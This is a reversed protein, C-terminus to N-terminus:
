FNRYTEFMDVLHTAVKDGSSTLTYYKSPFNGRQEPGKVEMTVLELEKLKKLTRYVPQQNLRLDKVFNSVNGRDFKKLFVMIELLGTLDDLSKLKKIEQIEIMQEMTLEAM